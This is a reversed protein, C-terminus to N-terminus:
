LAFAGAFSDDIQRYSAVTAELKHLTVRQIKGADLGREFAESIFGSRLSHGSFDDGYVSKIIKNILHGDLKKNSMVGGGKHVGCFLFDDGSLGAFDIWNKVAKIPCNNKDTAALIPKTAGKNTQDTKSKRIHVIARNKDLQEFDSVKLEALESRRFAGAFGLLLLAKNRLQTAATRGFFTIDHTVATITDAKAAKAKKPAKGYTREYAKLTDSVLKSQTPITMSDKVAADFADIADCYFDGIAAVSSRAFAVSKKQTGLHAIYNRILNTDILDVNVTDTDSDIIAVGITMAWDAFYTFFKKYAKRTNESKKNLMLNHTDASLDVGSQPQYNAVTTQTNAPIISLNQM